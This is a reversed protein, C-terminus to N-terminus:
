DITFNLGMAFWIKGLLRLLLNICGNLLSNIFNICLFPM